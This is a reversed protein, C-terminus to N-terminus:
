KEWLNFVKFRYRTSPVEDTDILLKDIWYGSENLADVVHVYSVEGTKPASITPNTITSSLGSPSYTLFHVTRGTLDVINGSGDRATLTVTLKQNKFINGM